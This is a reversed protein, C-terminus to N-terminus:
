DNEKGGNNNSNSISTSRPVERVPCAVYLNALIILAALAIIPILDAFSFKKANYNGVLVATLTLLSVIVCAVAIFSTPLVDGYQVSIFGGIALLAAIVFPSVVFFRNRKM